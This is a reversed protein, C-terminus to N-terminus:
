LIVGSVPIPYHTLKSYYPQANVSGLATAGSRLTLKLRLVMAADRCCRGSPRRQRSGLHKTVANDSINVTADPAVASPETCQASVREHEHKEIPAVRIGCVSGMLRYQLENVGPAVTSYLFVSFRRMFMILKLLM